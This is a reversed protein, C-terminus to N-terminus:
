VVSKRDTEVAEAIEEAHAGPEAHIAARISDSEISLLADGEENTDISIRATSSSM